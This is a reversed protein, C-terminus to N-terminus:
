NKDIIKNEFLGRLENKDIYSYYNNVELNQNIELFQDLVSQEDIIKKLLFVRLAPDFFSFWINYLAKDDFYSHELFKIKKFEKKYRKIINGKDIKENMKYFTAGIENYHKISNLTGDAGRVKYMYGPHIHFFNKKSEFVNKFKINLTNLFNQEKLNKLFFINKENNIKPHSSFSINEFKLLNEFNYMQLLFNKDLEFYDEVNRVFKLVRNSKLYNLTNKFFLNFKIKLYLKWFPPKYDLIVIKNKIYYKNIFLQLYGRAIPSESFILGIDNINNSNNKNIIM